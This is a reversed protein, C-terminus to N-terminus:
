TAGLTRCPASPCRLGPAHRSLEVYTYMHQRSEARASHKTLAMIKGYMATTSYVLWEARHKKFAISFLHAVHVRFPSPSAVIRETSQVTSAGTKPCSLQWDVTCKMSSCLINLFGEIWMYNNVRALLLNQPIQAIQKLLTFTSM